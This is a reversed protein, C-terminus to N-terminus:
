PVRNSRPDRMGALPVPPSNDATGVPGTVANVSQDLSPGPPVVSFLGANGVGPLPACFPLAHRLCAQFAM